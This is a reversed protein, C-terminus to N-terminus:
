WSSRESWKMDAADGAGGPVGDRGYSVIEYRSGDPGPASYVFANGWVDSPVEEDGYVAGLGETTSPEGRHKLAYLEVRKSVEHLQLRATGIRDPLSTICAGLVVLIGLRSVIEGREM